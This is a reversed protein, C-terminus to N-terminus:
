EPMGLRTPVRAGRHSGAISLGVGNALRLDNIIAIYPKPYTYIRHNLTYEVRFFPAAGALDNDVANKHLSVVDGGACLGRDGSGRILVAHVADNHEFETLAEGLLGIMNYSLANVAEPRSLTIVGWGGEVATLREPETM